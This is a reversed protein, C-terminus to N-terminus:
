LIVLQVRGTMSYNDMSGEEEELEAEEESDLTENDSTSSSTSSDINLAELDKLPYLRQSTEGPPSSPGSPPQVGKVPPDQAKKKKHTDKKRRAGLRESRETESMSDQVEELAVQGEDVARKCNDDELCNKVLKWIAKTGLRLDNNALHRNLDKGLKNWSTVTLSGSCAYWPAVRDVEKVFNKLTRHTIKIDRQKLVAELTTLVSQSSGM